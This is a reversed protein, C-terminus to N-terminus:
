GWGRGGWEQRDGSEGGGVGSRDIGVREGRGGWEEQRDGSERGVGSRRDIGVREGEWGM